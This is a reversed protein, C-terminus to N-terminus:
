PELIIIEHGPDADSDDSWSCAVDLPGLSITTEPGGVSVWQPAEELRTAISNRRLPYLDVTGVYQVEPASQLLAVVDPSRVPRGLPWGTEELGGVIPNFFRYLRTCLAKRSAVQAEPSLYQPQLVVQARVKIGVYDPSDPKVRIGLSKHTDLHQQLERTLDPDLLLQNPHLGQELFVTTPLPGNLVAPHPIILLHVVGPSALHPTTVCHARYILRSGVFQRATYEFEEPTLATKRTRLIAPVRMVAQDLSEADTGGIAPRYNIVRKVYPISTKLVNLRGAQINGRSGGGVRYRTMYIEAGLPPVRGYQRELDYDGPEMVAPLALRSGTQPPSPPRRFPRGWSQLQSRDRTQTQIQAPERILPGFQVLGSQSDILYHPDDQGSDGFDEVETWAQEEGDPLRVWIHEGDTRKLVPKGELEFQQGAKGDSTGLLEKGMQICESASITGGIARVTLGTIEPSRDYGSQLNNRNPETYVCRIWHGQYDGFEASPWRQPLHLIVDAGEQEPNPANEGLKDFSFGKTHDDQRQRLIGPQWRDGTWAEWRLPPNDPTVGTTMAAPGTFRLALINGLIRNPLPQSNGNGNGNTALAELQEPELVLYFCSGVECPDFLSFGLELNSWQREVEYTSARFRNSLSNATPLDETSNARLFHKIQPRGIVLDADTTFIIAEQNETRETAVETGAAIIKPDSQEKTLYFTLETSAPKPPALRIGLLELFAVYHRRPVQNFRYLMQHVLWAFLEILTVGPDGPNYNTWEPCYRPIRLLCEEVLDDFERDDLNSKPLNPLFKAASLIEPEM